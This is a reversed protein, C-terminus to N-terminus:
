KSKEVKTGCVPCQQWGSCIAQGYPEGFFLKREQALKSYKWVLHQCVRVEELEKKEVYRVATEYGCRHCQGTSDFDHKCPEKIENCLDCLPNTCRMYAQAQHQGAYDIFRNFADVLENVKDAIQHNVRGLYPSSPIDEKIIRQIKQM